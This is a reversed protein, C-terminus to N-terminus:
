ANAWCTGVFVIPGIIYGSTIINVFARLPKGYWAVHCEVWACALFSGLAVEAAEPFMSRQWKSEDPMVDEWLDAAAEALVVIEDL